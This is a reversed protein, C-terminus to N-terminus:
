GLAGEMCVWVVCICDDTVDETHFDYMTLLYPFDVPYEGSTTFLNGDRTIFTTNGEAVADVEAFILYCGADPDHWDIQNESENESETKPTVSKYVSLSLFLAAVVLITLAARLAIVQSKKMEYDSM